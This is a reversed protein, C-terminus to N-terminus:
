ARSRSFSSLSRHAAVDRDLELDRGGRDRRPRIARRRIAYGRGIRAVRELDAVLNGADRGVLRELVEDDARAVLERVRGSATASDGPSGCYLRQEDAPAGAEALGVEQVRDAVHRAHLIAACTRQTVASCNVFSIILATPVVAHRLEAVLVPLM